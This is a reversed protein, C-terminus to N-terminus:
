PDGLGTLVSRKRNDDNPGGRVVIHTIHIGTRMFTDPKIEASPFEKASISREQSAAPVARIELDLGSQADIPRASAFTQLGDRKRNDVAFDANAAYREDLVIATRIREIVEVICHFNHDM